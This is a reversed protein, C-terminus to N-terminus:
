PSPSAGAPSGALPSGAAPAFWKSMLDRVVPIKLEYSSTGAIKGSYTRPGLVVGKRTAINAAAVIEFIRPAQTIPLDTTVMRSGIELLEPLHQLGRDRVAEAVAAILLQQRRTRQFDNDGKRTRAFILAREGDLHNPGAPFYVGRRDASLWYTPDNVAKALTVDVGGLADILEVVGKFGIVAASDIEVDLAAGFIRKMERLAEISSGKSAVLSEYLANVKPEYIGGGPLPFRATDRPISAVSITNATADISAVMIMDTRNGAHGKRYDSGLFLITLRGDQGLVLDPGQPTPEPTPSPRPTSPARTPTPAVAVATATIEPSASPAARPQLAIGTAAVVVALATAGAGLTLRRNSRFGELRSGPDSMVRGYCLAGSGGM